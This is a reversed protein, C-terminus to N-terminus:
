ENLKPIWHKKDGKDNHFYIGGKKVKIAKNDFVKYSFLSDNVMINFKIFNGYDKSTSYVKTILPDLSFRLSTMLLPSKRVEVFLKHVPIKIEVLAISDCRRIEKVTDNIIIACECDKAAIENSRFEFSFKNVNENKLESSETVALPITIDKLFSNLIIDGHSKKYWKGTSYEYAHFQYFKYDFTSDSKINLGYPSNNSAYKGIFIWKNSCSALLLSLLLVPAHKKM